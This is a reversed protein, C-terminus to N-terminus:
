GRRRRRRRRSSGKYGEWQEYRNWHRDRHEEGDSDRKGHGYGDGRGGHL